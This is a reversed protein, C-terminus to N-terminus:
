PARDHRTATASSSTRVVPEHVGAGSQHGPEPLGRLPWRVLDDPLLQRLEGARRREHRERARDDRRQRDRVFVDKSSNTDGPV